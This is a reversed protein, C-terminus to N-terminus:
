WDIGTLPQKWESTRWIVDFVTDYDKISCCGHSPLKFTLYLDGSALLRFSSLDLNKNLWVSMCYKCVTQLMGDNVWDSKGENCTLTAVMLLENSKPTRIQGQNKEQLFHDFRCFTRVQGWEIKKLIHLYALPDQASRPILAPKFHQANSCGSYSCIRLPLLFLTPLLTLATLIFCGQVPM